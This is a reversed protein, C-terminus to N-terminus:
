TSCQYFTYPLLNHLVNWEEEQMSKKILKNYKSQTKNIIHVNMNQGKHLAIQSKLKIKQIRICFQNLPM